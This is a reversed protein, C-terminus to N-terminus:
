HQPAQFLTLEWERASPSYRLIYTARDTAEIKFYSHDSAIWRDLIQLVDLRRQGLHFALPERDGHPGARSEVHLIMAHLSFPYRLSSSSNPVRGHRKNRM